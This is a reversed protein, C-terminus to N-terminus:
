HFDWKWTSLPTDGPRTGTLENQDYKLDAPKKILLLDRTAPGLAGSASGPRPVRAAVREPLSPDGQGGGLM